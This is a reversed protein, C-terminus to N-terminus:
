EYNATVRLISHLHGLVGRNLVRKIEHHLKKFTEKEKEAYLVYGRM